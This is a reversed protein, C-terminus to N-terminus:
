VEGENLKRVWVGFKLVALTLEEKTLSVTTIHWSNPGYLDYGFRLGNNDKDAIFEKFEHVLEPGILMLEYRIKM